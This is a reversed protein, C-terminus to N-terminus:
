YLILICLNILNYAHKKTQWISVTSPHAATRRLVEDLQEKGNILQEVEPVSASPKGDCCCCHIAEAAAKTAKTTPHYTLGVTAMTTAMHEIITIFPLM